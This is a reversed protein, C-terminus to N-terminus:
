IAAADMNVYSAVGNDLKVPCENCRGNKCEESLAMRRKNVHSDM